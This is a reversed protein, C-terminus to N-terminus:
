WLKIIESDGAGGNGGALGVGAGAGGAGGAVSITGNQIVYGGALILLSGGGGGGGGSTTGGGAAGVGGASTVVSGVDVFIAPAVLVNAAASRGGNGGTSGAVGAGGGGSAGVWGYYFSADSYQSFLGALIAAGGNGGAGGTAGAAGGANTQALRGPVTQSGGAGGTNATGGGGGGGTGGIGGPTGATGNAAATGAGGGAGSANGFTGTNTIIVPTQVYTICGINNGSNGAAYTGGDIALRQLFSIGQACTTAGTIVGGTSTTSLLGFRKVREYHNLRIPEALTARITPASTILAVGLPIMPTTITYPGSGGSGCQVTATCIKTTNTALDFWIAPNSASANTAGTAPCPNSADLKSVYSWCPPNDTVVLDASVPNANTTDQKAFVFFLVDAAPTAPTVTLLSNISQYRGGVFYILPTGSGDVNITAGAGATLFAPNGASTVSTCIATDLVACSYLPELQNSQYTIGGQAFALTALLLFVLLKKM